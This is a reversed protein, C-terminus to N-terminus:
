VNSFIEGEKLLKKRQKTKTKQPIIQYSFSFFFKFSLVIVEKRYEVKKINKKTKTKDWLNNHGNKKRM